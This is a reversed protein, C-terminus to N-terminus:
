AIISISVTCIINLLPRQRTEFTVISNFDDQPFHTAIVLTM